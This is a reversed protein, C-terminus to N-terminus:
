LFVETMWNNVRSYYKKEKEKSENSKKRRIKHKIAYSMPLNTQKIYMYLSVTKKGQTDYV